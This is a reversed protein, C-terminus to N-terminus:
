KKVSDINQKYAKYGKLPDTHSAQQKAADDMQKQAAALYQTAAISDACKAKLAKKYWQEEQKADNIMRYCEAIQFLITAKTVKSAKDYKDGIDMYAKKYLDIAGFYKANQFAKDADSLSHKQAIASTASLLLCASIIIFQKM